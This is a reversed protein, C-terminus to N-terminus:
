VHRMYSKSYDDQNESLFNHTDYNQINKFGCSELIEKMINFDFNVYHYDYYNKQGGNLFGILESINKNYQYVVKEFDPVYIRLIGGIKLIRNFELIQNLIKNRCIHELVHYIYMEDIKNDNFINLNDINLKVDTNPNIM